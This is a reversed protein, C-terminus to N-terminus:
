LKGSPESVARPRPSVPVIIRVALNRVPNTITTVPTERAAGIAVRSTSAWSPPTLPSQNLSKYWKTNTNRM